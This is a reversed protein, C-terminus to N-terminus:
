WNRQSRLSCVRSATEEDEIVDLVATYSNFDHVYARQNWSEVQRCAQLKAERQLGEKLLDSM